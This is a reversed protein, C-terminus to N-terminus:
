HLLEEQHAETTEAKQEDQNAVHDGGKKAPKKEVAAAMLEDAEQAQETVDKPTQQIHREPQREEETYMGGLSEPFAERLANVIAVKRIMNCPQTKWTSQGKSFEQLSTEVRYPTERDDRLVEAWGGILLENPLKVAGTRYKLDDGHQVIIGAKLGKYHKNNEARKMYAEKSTIIQAPKTGFKVIYAEHLFPNLHQYKCLNIFMVIEQTSVQGNGSTLYDKVTKPSLTVDEGNVKFTAEQEDQSQKQLQNAM